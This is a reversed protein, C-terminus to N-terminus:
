GCGWGWDVKGSWVQADLRVGGGVCVCARARARGLAVWVWLGFGMDSM